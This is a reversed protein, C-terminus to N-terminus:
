GRELVDSDKGIFERVGRWGYFDLRDDVLTPLDTV